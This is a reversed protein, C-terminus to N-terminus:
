RLNRSRFRAEAAGWGRRGGELGEVGGCRNDDGEDEEEPPGDMGCWGESRVAAIGMRRRRGGLGRWDMRLDPETSNQVKSSAILGAVGM